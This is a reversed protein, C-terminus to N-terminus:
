YSNISDYLTVLRDRDVGLELAALVIEPQSGHSSVLVPVECALVQAMADPPYIHIGRWTHRQKAPDSDLIVYERQPRSQFFPTTAYIQEVHTGGGWIVCRDVCALPETARSVAIAARHWRMLAERVRVTDHPDGLVEEEREAPECLVRDGNYDSQHRWEVIRWGGRALCNSLSRRSFHTMHQVTFLGVLDNTPRGELTPVEVVLKSGSHSAERLSTLVSVPQPVHELVHFMTILDPPTSVTFSAFDSVLLEAAQGLRERGRAVASADVDVGMRRVNGPLAALLDGDYCGIDLIAAGDSVLEREVMWSAQEQVHEAAAGYSQEAQEFLIHFGTDTYAPDLYAAFCRECQVERITTRKPRDIDDTYFQYDPM